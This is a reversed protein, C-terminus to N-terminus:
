KIPIQHPEPLKGEYTLIDNLLGVVLQEADRLSAERTLGTGVVGRGHWPLTLADQEETYFEVCKSNTADAAVDLTFPGYKASIEGFLDDPTYWNNREMGQLPPQIANTM